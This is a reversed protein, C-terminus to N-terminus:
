DTGSKGPPQKKGSRFYAALLILLTISVDRYVSDAKNGWQISEEPKEEILRALAINKM